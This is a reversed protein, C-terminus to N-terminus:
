GAESAEIIKAAPQTKSVVMLAIDDANSGARTAARAIRDHVASLNDVITM